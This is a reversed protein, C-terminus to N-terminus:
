LQSAILRSQRARMVPEVSQRLLLRDLADLTLVFNIDRVYNRRVRSEDSELIQLFAPNWLRNQRIRPDSLRERVYASLRRAFWRRYSIYRHFPLPWFRPPLAALPRNFLSLSGPAEEHYWYDLKFTGTAYASRIYSALRSQGLLKGRTTPIRQLQQRHRSVLRLAPLASRRLIDPTQFAISVIDNDLYPTRTSVQSWGAQALGSLRWPIGQFAALSVPHMGAGLTNAGADDLYRAFGPNLLEASRPLPRLSPVERLIESGFNGTLRVPALDRARQNLYIEHAGTIGLYGDTTYVTRDALSPFDSFFEQGLRVVHHPIGCASAVRAAIRVDFTEGEEGGFTYAVVSGPADPLCAMIMRTDLGGTLSIGIKSGSGFYRPLVRSFTAQLVREFADPALPRQSQWPSADFYRTRSSKGGEFAWLSGGPLREVDRFLTTSGLTCGFQFLQAVGKPDLARLEPLVALLAKAESAFFLGDEGQHYYLREMGYRDNFLFAKRRRQDILLGSFIGNLEEFFRDGREEYLHVLWSVSNGDFRHGRAKLDARTSADAFCEGAFLL